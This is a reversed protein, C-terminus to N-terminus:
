KTRAPVRVRLKSDIESNCEAVEEEAALDELVELILHALEGTSTVDEDALALELQDVIASWQKQHLSEPRDHISAITM